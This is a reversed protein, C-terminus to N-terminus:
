IKNSLNRNLIEIPYDATTAMKWRQKGCDSWIFAM